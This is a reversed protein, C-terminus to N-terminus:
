RPSIATAGPLGGAYEPQETGGREQQTSRGTLRLRCGCRHRLDPGRQGIRRHLAREGREIAGRGVHGGSQRAEPRDLGRRASLVFAGGLDQAAESRQTDGVHV